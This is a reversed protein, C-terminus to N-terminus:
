EGIRSFFELVTRINRQDNNLFEIETKIEDMRNKLSKLNSKEKILVQNDNSREIFASDRLESNTFVKKGSSDVSSLIDSKIENEIVIIRENNERIEESLLITKEQLEKIKSPTELLRESLGILKQDKM